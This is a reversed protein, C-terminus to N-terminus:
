PKTKRECGFSVCRLAFVGLFGGGGIDTEDEDVRVDRQNDTEDGTSCQLHSTAEPVAAEARLGVRCLTRGAGPPRSGAVPVPELFACFSFGPPRPLDSSQDLGGGEGPRHPDVSGLLWRRLGLADFRERSLSLTVETWGACRQRQPATRHPAPTKTTHSGRDLM